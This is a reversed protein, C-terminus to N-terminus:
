ARRQELFRLVHEAVQPATDPDAHFHHSGPLKVFLQPQLLDLCRQLKDAEFPWGDEATLFATPCQIAQYLGETQDSTFFQVSPWQLRPDHVFQLASDPFRETGDDETDSRVAPRTGRLVLETAAYESLYQKGPFNRATACRTQVALELSDYVRPPRRTSRQRREVHLRVHQAVDAAKRALPGAGELLVLQSVHEPFAAAYLCSIAAGMSHGIVCFESDAWKLERVAELVYYVAESLVVPPGNTPRHDSWGHGPFDLAVVHANLRETLAPALHHFTRCNDMWGHLCLIRREPSSTTQSSSSSAAEDRRKLEFSSSPLYSQAAMQLGEGCSLLLESMRVAGGSLAASSALTGARTVSSTCALAAASAVLPAASMIFSVLPLLFFISRTTSLFCDRCFNIIVIFAAMTKMLKSGDLNWRIGSEAKLKGIM